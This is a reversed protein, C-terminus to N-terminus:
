YSCRTSAPIPQMFVYAVYGILLLSEVVFSLGVARRTLRIPVFGVGLVAAVVLLHESALGLSYFPLAALAFLAGFVECEHAGPSVVVVLLALEALGLVFLVREIAFRKLLAM